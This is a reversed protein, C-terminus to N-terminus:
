YEVVYIRVELKMANKEASSCRITLAGGGAFDGHRIEGAGWSLGSWIQRDYDIRVPLLKGDQIGSIKLVKEM